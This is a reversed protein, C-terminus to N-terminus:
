QRHLILQAGPCSGEQWDMAVQGSGFPRVSIATVPCGDALTEITKTSKMELAGNSVSGALIASAPTTLLAMAAIPNAQAFPGEGKTALTPAFCEMSIYGDFQNAGPSASKLELMARCQRTKVMADGVYKGSLSALEAPSLDAGAQSQFINVQPQAQRVPSPKQPMPALAPKSALLARVPRLYSPAFYLAAAVSGAIWLQKRRKDTM